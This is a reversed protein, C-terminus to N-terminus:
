RPVHGRPLGHHRHAHRSDPDDPSRPSRREPLLPHEAESRRGAVSLPTPVSQGAHCRPSNLRLCYQALLTQLDEGAKVLSTRRSLTSPTDMDRSDYSAPVATGPAHIRQIKSPARPMGVGLSADQRLSARVRSIRVRSPLYAHYPYRERDPFVPNPLISDKWRGSGSPHPYSDSVVAGSAPPVPFMRNPSFAQPNQPPTRGPCSGSFALALRTLNSGSLRWHWFGSSLSTQM